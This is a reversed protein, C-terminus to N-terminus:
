RVGGVGLNGVRHGSTPQEGTGWELGWAAVTETQGTSENKHWHVVGHLKSPARWWMQYAFQLAPGLGPHCLALMLPAGWNHANQGRRQCHAGRAM